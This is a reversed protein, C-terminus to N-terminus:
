KCIYYDLNYKCVDVLDKEKAKFCDFLLGARAEYWIRFSERINDFRNMLEALARKFLTNEILVERNKKAQQKITEEQSTITEIGLLEIIEGTDPNIIKKPIFPSGSCAKEEQGACYYGVRVGWASDFGRNLWSTWWAITRNKFSNCWDRWRQHEINACIDDTLNNVTATKIKGWLNDTIDNRKIREGCEQLCIDRCVTVNQTQSTKNVFVFPIVRQIVFIPEDNHDKAEERCKLREGRGVWEWRDRVNGQDDTYQGVIELSVNTHKTTVFSIRINEWHVCVWYTTEDARERQEWKMCRPPVSKTACITTTISCEINVCSTNPQCFRSNHLIIRDVLDLGTAFITEVEQKQEMLTKIFEAQFQSYKKLTEELPIRECLEREIPGMILEEAEATKIIKLFSVSLVFILLVLFLISCYYFINKQSKFVFM